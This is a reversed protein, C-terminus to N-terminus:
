APRIQEIAEMVEDLIVDASDDYNITMPPKFRITLKVGRKRVRVGKKGFAERFGDVVIPVVTPRHQKILFSTGRRGAAYPTTTGQPFTIVWGSGLAKGINSYDQLKVQRSVDHGAERWTRKISISGAYTLLRPWIGSRMTEEAAIYYTNLKSRLLYFPSGFRERPKYRANALAHVIGIVDSFYTQHNSVFLVNHEPLEQLIETGLIRPNSLVVINPYTIIGATVIVLRKM